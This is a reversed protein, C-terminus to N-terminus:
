RLYKLPVVEAPEISPLSDPSKSESRAMGGNTNLLGGGGLM